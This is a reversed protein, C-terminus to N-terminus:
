QTALTPIFTQKSCSELSIEVSKVYKKWNIRRIKKSRM